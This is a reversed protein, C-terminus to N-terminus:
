AVKQLLSYAGCSLPIVTMQSAWEQRIWPVDKPWQQMRGVPKFDTFLRYEPSSNWCTRQDHRLFGLGTQKDRVKLTWSTDQPEELPVDWAGPSGPLQNAAHPPGCAGPQRHTRRTWM